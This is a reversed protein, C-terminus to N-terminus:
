DFSWRTSWSKCTKYGGYREYTLYREHGPRLPQDEIGDVYPSLLMDEYRKPEEM